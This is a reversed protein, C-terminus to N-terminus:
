RRFSLSIMQATLLFILGFMGSPITLFIIGIFTMLLNELRDALAENNGCELDLLCGNILSYNWVM